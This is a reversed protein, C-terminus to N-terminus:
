GLIPIEIQLIYDEMREIVNENIGTEYSYGHFKLNHKQAYSLIEQYRRPLKEWDGKHFARLYKGGPIIHLGTKSTLFPIEIFLKSYDDYCGNMLSSVPLM